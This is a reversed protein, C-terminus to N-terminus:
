VQPILAAQPRVIRLGQHNIQHHLGLNSLPQYHRTLPVVQHQPQHVLVQQQPQHVLVQQPQPVVLSQQPVVSRYSSQPQPVPPAAGAQREVVAVFGSLPDASYRVTRLTGDPEILSYM